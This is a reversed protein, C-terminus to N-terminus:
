SAVLLLPELNLRQNEEDESLLLLGDGSALAFFNDIEM